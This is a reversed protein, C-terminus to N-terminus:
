VTKMREKLFSITREKGTIHAIKRRQHSSHHSATPHVHDKGVKYKANGKVTVSTSATIIINLNMESTFKCTYPSFYFLFIISLSLHVEIVTCLYFSFFSSIRQM